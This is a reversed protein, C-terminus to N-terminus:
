NRSCGKHLCLDFDPPLEDSIRYLSEDFLKAGCAPLIKGDIKKTFHAIRTFHNLFFPGKVAQETEDESSSSSSSESSSDLSTVSKEDSHPADCLPLQPEPQPASPRIHQNLEAGPNPDM